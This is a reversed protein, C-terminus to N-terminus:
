IYGKWWYYIIGLYEHLFGRIQDLTLKKIWQIKKISSNYNYFKSSPIPTYIVKVNPANGKFVLSTRLMHYPSSILLVKNWGNMKIIRHAEIVSQYTSASNTDLMIDKDRVGLSVSLAKMVDPEKFLHTYGSSFIIKKAYGKQYLDIAYKAREEYGQGPIGSEGAGGGIVVIVNAKEPQQSIILPNALIRLFPSYFIFFYLFIPALVWKAFRRRNYNYIKILKEEWSEIETTKKDEIINGIVKSMKEIRIEWTNNEAAKIRKEREELQVNNNIALKLNEAFEEKTKSVYVLNANEENFYKIEPLATSVVPKGMALYENLKTPYVNETYETLLYPIIGVDFNNAYYPLEVHRKMGLFYINNIGKLRSIDCQIPGVFLFSYDPSEEALYKILNHDMWKHIGGIYGVFPRPLGSIDEPIKNENNKRVNEFNVINVGFPFLKIKEKEKFQAAYEYLKNSTVFVSDVLEIMEKENKSIKKAKTSSERFNDICYYISAKHRIGGIVDISLGTPLFTWMIPLDFNASVMWRKISRKLIFSNILRILKSYPFPLVIPSFLYLNDQIKRYGKISKFWNKIRQLLRGFDKFTPSRVGTNEIFLVTNGNEAFTSMIEQHGQWVFDWDISSICIINENKLM